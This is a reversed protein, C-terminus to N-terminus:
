AAFAFINGIESRNLHPPIGGGVRAIPLVQFDNDKLLPVLGANLLSTKGAGSLAYLLVERHAILLSLLDTTDDARGFFVYRETSHFPRPGPFPIQSQPRM